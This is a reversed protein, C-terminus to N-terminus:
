RYPDPPFSSPAYPDHVAGRMPETEVPRETFPRLLRVGIGVAVICAGIVTLQTMRDDFPAVFLDTAEM